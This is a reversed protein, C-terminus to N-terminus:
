RDSRSQTMASELWKDFSNPDSASCSVVVVNNRLPLIHDNLKSEAAATATAPQICSGTSKM